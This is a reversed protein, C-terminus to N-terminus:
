NFTTKPTTLSPFLSPTGYISNSLCLQFQTKQKGAVQIAKTQTQTAFQFKINSKAIVYMRQVSETMHMSTKQQWEMRVILLRFFFHRLREAFNYLMIGFYHVLIGGHCVLINIHNNLEVWYKPHAIKYIANAFHAIVDRPDQTVNMTFTTLYPPPNAGLTFGMHPMIIHAHPDHKGWGWEMWCEKPRWTVGSAATFYIEKCKRLLQLHKDCISKQILSQFPFKVGINNAYSQCM